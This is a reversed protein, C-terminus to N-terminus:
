NSDPVPGPAPASARAADIGRLIGTSVASWVNVCTVCVTYLKYVLTRRYDVLGREHELRASFFTKVMGAYDSETSVWVRPSRRDEGGVSGDDKKEMQSELYEVATLLKVFDLHVSSPQTAVIALFTIMPGFASVIGTVTARDSVDFRSLLAVSAICAVACLVLSWVHYVYHKKIDEEAVREFACIEGRTVSLHSVTSGM